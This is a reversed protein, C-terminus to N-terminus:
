ISVAWQDKGDVHEEEDVRMRGAVGGEPSRRAGM